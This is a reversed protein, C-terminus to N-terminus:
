ICQISFPISTGSCNAMAPTLSVIKNQCEPEEPDNPDSSVPQTIIVGGGIESEVFANRGCSILFMVLIGALLIKM